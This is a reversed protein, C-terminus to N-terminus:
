WQSVMQGALREQREKEAAEAAKERGESEDDYVQFVQGAQPVGNLGYMRVAISPGAEEIPQGRDNEMARVKGQCSGCVVYDGVELTGAQVLMTTAAGKRADLQAEIVTGTAEREPNAMLEQVEAVLVITELLDKMGTGKKASVPIMPIDGGWEECVLGIESLGSYTRQIDAGEKDVKNIAVVIPVGAAQAHSIAEATQPKVGDDAAVIIIAVDTVKAGRARMASFAEHGPTDLFCIQGGGEVEVNYAGISQTIGGAEGDAVRAKRIYDLLSTKGHDVHGM